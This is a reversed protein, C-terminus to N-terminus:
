QTAGEVPLGLEKALALLERGEASDPAFNKLSEKLALTAKENDKLMARSRVLRMWGEFNKPEDKLRADLSEVMGLIMAERDAPAMEQAAAVDDATPGSLPPVAPASETGLKALHDRVLPVWPADKPSDRILAEFIETAEKKQGAQAHGLGSYFRARPNAPQLKLAEDFAERAQDTVIGDSATLLTEGLGTLREPSPGLIRIANRYAMEADATRMTRFYIPALVDWGTGDEPNEALHREARAVLLSMDNGPNAMRVALPQDPVGPSGILLYLCLGTAPLFVLVALSALRRMGGSAAAAAKAAQANAALLRRGIEARANEAEQSNILGSARERELESMQDRYVADESGGALAEVPDPRVLPRVLFVAIAATLTAIIIWFLM